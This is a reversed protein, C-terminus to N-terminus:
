HGHRFVIAWIYAPLRGSKSEVGLRRALEYGRQEAEQVTSDSDAGETSLRTRPATVALYDEITVNATPNTRVIDDM